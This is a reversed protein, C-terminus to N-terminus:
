PTQDLLDALRERLQASDRVTNRGAHLLGIADDVAAGAASSANQAADMGDSQLTQPDPGDAVDGGPSATEATATRGAVVAPPRADVPPLTLPAPWFPGIQEQRSTAPPAPSIADASDPAATTGPTTAMLEAQATFGLSSLRAALDQAVDRPLPLQWPAYAFALTVFTVDDADRSLEHLLQAFLSEADAPAFGAEDGHALSLADAFRGTRSLGKALFRAIRHGEASGRLPLLIARAEDVLDDSLPLNMDQQRTLLLTLSEVSPDSLLDHELREAVQVSVRPLDLAAQAIRLPDSQGEAVRDLSDRIAHAHSVHGQVVLHRVLHPGLHLRLHPPLGQIAQVLAPFAFNEPLDDPLIALAQWLPAMGDCNELYTPLLDPPLPALDVLHGLIELIRDEQRLPHLLSLIVRAEAGFGLYLHHKVLNRTIEADLSDIETFLLGPIHPVLATTAPDAWAAPDILDSPPCSAFLDDQLRRAIAGRAASVSDTVSFQGAARLDQATTGSPVPADPSHARSIGAPPSYPAPTLLGQGTAESLVRGLERTMGPMAFEPKDSVTDDQAPEMVPTHAGLVQRLLLSPGQPLPQARGALMSALSQGAALAYSGGGEAPHPLAPQPHPARTPPRRTDVTARTIPINVRAIDIVLNRPLDEAAHLRCDCALTLELGADTQTLTALRTRPIRAFTQSLDFALAPGSITLDAKRGQQTLRWDNEDPMQIVLRTFAAHEGARVPITTVQAVAGTGVFCIGIIAIIQGATWM